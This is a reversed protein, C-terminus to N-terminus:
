LANMTGGRSQLFTKHGLLWHYSNTIAFVLWEVQLLVRYAEEKLSKDLWFRMVPM